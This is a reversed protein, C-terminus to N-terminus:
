KRYYAPNMERVELTLGVTGSAMSEQFCSKMQSYLADSIQSLHAPDRGALICVTLHAFDDPAGAGMIWIDSRRLYGKVARPDVTEFNSFSDVLEQLIKALPFRAAINHTTELQLHPM